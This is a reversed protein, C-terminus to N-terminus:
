EIYVLKAQKDQAADEKVKRASAMAKRVRSHPRRGVKHGNVKTKWRM